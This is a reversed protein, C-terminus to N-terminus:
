ELLKARLADLEEGTLGIARMYGSVSGYREELLTLCGDLYAPRSNGVYAALNPIRASLEQIVPSIYLETVMYDALIDLRDVGALALLLASICGTRDKGATCHCLVGGPTHAITRLVQAPAKERALMEFYSKPVDEELNPLREGGTLPILHYVFGPLARLEDPKCEVEERSRLDIVTTIDRERLWDADKDTLGLPNDGRLIRGWRTYGGGRVPYGGLDRLNWMSGLPIRRQM